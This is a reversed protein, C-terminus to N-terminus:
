VIVAQLQQWRKRTVNTTYGMTHGVKGTSPKTQASMLGCLSFSICETVWNTKGMSIFAESLLSELSASQIAPGSSFIIPLDSLSFYPSMYVAQWERNAICEILGKVGNLDTRNTRLLMHYYVWSSLQRDVIFVYHGKTMRSTM